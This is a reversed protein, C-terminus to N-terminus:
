FEICSFQERKADIKLISESCTKKWFLTRLLKCDSLTALSSSALMRDGRCVSAKARSRPSRRNNQKWSHFRTPLVILCIINESSPNYSNADAPFVVFEFHDKTFKHQITIHCESVTCQQLISSSKENKPPEDSSDTNSKTQNSIKRASERTRQSIIIREATIIATACGMCFAFVRCPLDSGSRATCGSACTPLCLFVM